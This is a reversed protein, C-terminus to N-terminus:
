SLSGTANNKDEPRRNQKHPKKVQKQMRITVMNNNKQIFSKNSPMILMPQNGANANNAVYPQTINTDIEFKKPMSRLKPSNEDLNSSNNSLGRTRGFNQSRSNNQM